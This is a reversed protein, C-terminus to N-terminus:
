TGPSAQPRGAGLILDETYKVIINTIESEIAAGSTENFLQVYKRWCKQEAGIFFGPDADAADKIAQPSFTTLHHRAFSEGTAGIAAVLGGILQRTKDMVQTIQATSIENDGVLYPGALKKLDGAEGADRRVISNPALSKWVNWTLQDMTVVLDILVTVLRLVRKRDLAAGEELSLKKRLEPPVDDADGMTAAALAAPISLVFGAQRLRSALTRRTEDSLTSAVKVLQAVIAEPSTPAAPAPAPAPKPAPPPVPAIQETGQASEEGGPFREALTSLYAARSSPPIERMERELEEEVYGLRANPDDDAFSAQLMQLRAGVRAAWAIQDPPHPTM